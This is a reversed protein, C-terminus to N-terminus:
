CQWQLSINTCLFPQSDIILEEAALCQVTMKTNDYILLINDELLDSPMPYRAINHSSQDQTSIALPPLKTDEPIYKDDEIRCLQNHYASLMNNHLLTCTLLTHPQLSLTYKQTTIQLTTGSSTFHSNRYCEFASCYDPTTSLAQVFHLAPPNRFKDLLEQLKDIYITKKNLFLQNMQAAILRKRNLQAVNMESDIDGELTNMSQTLAEENHSIRHFNKNIARFNKNSAESFEELNFSVYLILIQTLYFQM